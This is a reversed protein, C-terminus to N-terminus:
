LLRARYLSAASYYKGCTDDPSRDGVISLREIVDKAVDPTTCNLDPGSFGLDALREGGHFSIFCDFPMERRRREADSTM